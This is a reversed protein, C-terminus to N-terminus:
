KSFAQIADILGMEYAKKVRAWDGKEGRRNFFLTAYNRQMQTGNFLYWEIRGAGEPSDVLGLAYDIFRTEAFDTHEDLGAMVADVGAASGSRAATVYYELKTAM